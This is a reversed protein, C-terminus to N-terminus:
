SMEPTYRVARDRGTEKARYLAKDAREVAHELPLEAPAIVFSVTPLVLDGVRHGWRDNVETFADLDCFLLGLEEGDSRHCGIASTLLELLLARNPLGTLPDHLAAQRLQQEAEM